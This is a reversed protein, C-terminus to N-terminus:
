LQSKRFFERWNKANVTWIAKGYVPDFYGMMFVLSWHEGLKGVKALPARKGSTLERVRTRAVAPTVQIKKAIFNEVAFPTVLIPLCNATREKRSTKKWWWGREEALPRAEAAGTAKAKLAQWVRFRSISVIGWHEKQMRDLAADEWHRIKVSHCGALGKYTKQLIKISQRAATEIQHLHELEERIVKRRAHEEIERGTHRAKDEDKTKLLEAKVLFEVKALTQKPTLTAKDFLTRYDVGRRERETLDVPVRYVQIGDRQEKPPSDTQLTLHPRRKKM